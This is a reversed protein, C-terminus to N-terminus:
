TSVPNGDADEFEDSDQIYDWDSVVRATDTPIKEADLPLGDVVEAAYSTDDEEDEVIVAVSRVMTVYQRIIIEKAM